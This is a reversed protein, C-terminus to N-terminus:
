VSYVFVNQVGYEKCYHDIVQKHLPDDDILFVSDFIGGRILELIFHLKLESDSKGQQLNRYKPDHVAFILDPDIEVDIGQKQLYKPLAIRVVDEASRATLIGIETDADEIADRLIGLGPGVRARLFSQTAKDLDDFESFDLQYSKLKGAKKWDRYQDTSLRQIVEGSSNKLGIKADTILLTDDLDFLVLKSKLM